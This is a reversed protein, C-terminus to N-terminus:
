PNQRLYEEIDFQKPVPMRFASGAPYEPGVPAGRYQSGPPYIHLDNPAPAPLPRAVEIKPMVEGPTTISPLQPLTRQQPIIPERISPQPGVGLYGKPAASVDANPITTSPLQKPPIEYPPISTSPARFDPKAGGTRFGERIAVDTPKASLYRGAAVDRGADAITGINSLPKTISLDKLKAFGYPQPKEAITSRGQVRGEVTSLQSFTKRIAGPDIGAAELHPDLAAKVDQERQLLQAQNLGKQQATQIAQPDRAKLDRNLASLQKREEELAGVTTEGDPGKVKKDSIADVTQKYPGWVENKAGPLKGQIDELNKAGQLYPRSGEVASVTRISKASSPPVRLGRLAAADTDGIAATRIASGMEPLASIGKTLGAALLAPGAISGAAFAPHAKISAAQQRQGEQADMQVQRNAEMDEKRGPGFAPYGEGMPSMGSAMAGQIGGALTDVPHTVFQKIGAGAGRLLDMAGGHPELMGPEHKEAPFQKALVGEIEQTSMGDPFNAITGDPLKVRTPM